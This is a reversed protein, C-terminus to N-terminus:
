RPFHLLRKVKTIKNFYYLCCGSEAILATIATVFFVNITMAFVNDIYLNCAIALLVLIVFGIVANRLMSRLTTWRWGIKIKEKCESLSDNQLFLLVCCHETIKVDIRRDTEKCSYHKSTLLNIIEKTSM